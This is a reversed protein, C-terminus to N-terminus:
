FISTNVMRSMRVHKIDSHTNDVKCQYQEINHRCAEALARNVKFNEQMLKQRQMLKQQCQLRCCM